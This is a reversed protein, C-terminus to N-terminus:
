LQRLATQERSLNYLPTRAGEDHRRLLSATGRRYRGPRGGARSAYEPFAGEEFGALFVVPFELGKAAHMTLLNVKSDGEDAREQDTFLAVQALAEAINGDEPMISLLERVNGVRDEWEERFEGM